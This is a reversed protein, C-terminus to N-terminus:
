SSRSLSKGGDVAIVQGTIYSAQALFLVTGAIDEPEGKRALPIGALWQQETTTDPTVGPPWLIAGPAIGNVRVAPALEIALSQTLMALGAKAACYVSHQRLPKQAHIDILNIISGHQQALAHACQQSLFFPAKLNSAMLTNWDDESTNGLTNPHFTSANNVLLDLRQWHNIAQEALAVTAQHDDLDACLAYASHTRQQNLSAVLDTAAQASQRYHVLIRWGQSHLTRAITAGIRQAGGTILAVPSNDPM